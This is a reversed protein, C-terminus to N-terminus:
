QTRVGFARAIGVTRELLIMALIAIGTVAFSAASLVPTLEETMSNFMAVSLPTTRPSALFLSMPVEDFSVVFVLAMSAIISPKMAPLIVRLYIRLPSAGLTRAADEVSVDLSGYGIMVTRMAFPFTVIVHGLFLTSFDLYVGYSKWMQLSASALVIIPVLVPLNLAGLVVKPALGPTKQIYRGLALSVLTTTISVLLALRLSIVFGQRFDRKNWAEVFWDFGFGRPPFVPFRSTGFASGLVMVLPLLAFVAILLAITRQRIM